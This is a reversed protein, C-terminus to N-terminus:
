GALDSKLDNDLSSINELLAKSINNKQLHVSLDELLKPFKKLLTKFVTQIQHSAESTIQFLIFYYYLFITVCFNYIVKPLLIFNFYCSILSSQDGCKLLVLSQALKHLISVDNKNGLVEFLNELHVTSCENSITKLLDESLVENNELYESITFALDSIVISDQFKPLEDQTNDINLSNSPESISESTLDVIEINEKPIRCLKDM